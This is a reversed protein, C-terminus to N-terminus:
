IFKLKKMRPKRLRNKPLMGFVAKKLVEGPDKRFLEEFTRSKIGGPYGSYRYYIKQKNKKGSIKVKNVNEVEIIEDGVKEPRFTAKHKGQLIVAIESALRGLFKNTADIRM